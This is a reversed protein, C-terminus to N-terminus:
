GAMKVDGGKGGGGTKSLDSGIWLVNNCRILVMGLSGTEKGDIFEVTEGLQLNM